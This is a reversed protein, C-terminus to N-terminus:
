TQNQREASMEIAGSNSAKPSCRVFTSKLGRYTTLKQRIHRKESNSIFVVSEKKNHLATVITQNRGGNKWRQWWTV